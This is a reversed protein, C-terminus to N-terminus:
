ATGPSSDEYNKSNNSLDEELYDLAFSIAGLDEASLEAPPRRRIRRLKYITEKIKEKLPNKM